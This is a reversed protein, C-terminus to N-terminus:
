PIIVGRNEQPKEENEPAQLTEFEDFVKFEPPETRAPPPMCGHIKIDDSALSVDANRYYKRFLKFYGKTQANIYDSSIEPDALIRAFDYAGNVRWL